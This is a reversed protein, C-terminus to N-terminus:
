RGTWGSHFSRKRRPIESITKAIRFLRCFATSWGSATLISSVDDQASGRGHPLWASAIRFCHPLGALSRGDQCLWAKGPRALGPWARGDLRLSAMDLEYIYAFACAYACIEM